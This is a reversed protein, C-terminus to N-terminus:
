RKARSSIIQLPKELIVQKRPRIRVSCISSIQLKSDSSVKIGIHKM